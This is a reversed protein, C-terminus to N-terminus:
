VLNQDAMQKVFQSCIHGLREHWCQLDSVGDRIAYNVMKMPISRDALAEKGLVFGNEATFTWLKCPQVLVQLAIEGKMTVTSKRLADDYAIQLGQETAISQLFLNTKKPSYNVDDVRM